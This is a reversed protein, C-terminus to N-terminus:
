KIKRKKGRNEDIRFKVIETIFEVPLPKDLPFHISGKTGKYGSDKFKEIATVGAPYLGIHKKNVAFYVLPGNLKYAPMGYSIIEEAEPATGKIISRILHLREQIDIPFGSIYEEVTKVKEM